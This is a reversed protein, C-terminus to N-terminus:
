SGNSSIRIEQIDGHGTICTVWWKKPNAQMETALNALIHEEYETKVRECEQFYMNRAVRYNEWSEPSQNNAAHCYKRDKSRRLQRLYNNYWNQDNPRVTVTHNPVKEKSIKMFLDTWRDCVIDIDDSDLCEDWNTNDLETRFEDFNAQKFNWMNRKFAGRKITKMNLTGFITRHDNEHIPSGVGVETVLNPLNTLILDLKSSREAIRTPENVHQTLNNLSIFDDLADSATKETGPDANLDGLIIINPVSSAVAGDLSEQLNEWYNPAYRGIKQRYTIGILIQKSNNMVQIWLTEHMAKELDLRRKSVLSIAVWAAVGGYGTGDSRDL